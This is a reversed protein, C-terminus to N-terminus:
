DIAHCKKYKKGSGCWCAANREWKIPPLFDGDVYWWRDGEFVFRSREHLQGQKKQQSFFAAFEVYNGEAALVCLGLWQTNAFSQELGALEDPQHRSPHLTALLFDAKGMAFASYRARMLQEPRTVTEGQWVRACCNELPQLSGCPCLSKSDPVINSRTLVASRINFAKSKANQWTYVSRGFNAGLAGPVPLWAM